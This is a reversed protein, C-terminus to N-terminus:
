RGQGEFGTCSQVTLNDLAVPHGFRRGHGLERWGPLEFGTRNADGRRVRLQADHTDLAAIVKIDVGVSFNPNASGLYHQAVEVVGFGRRGSNVGVAPKVGAVDSVNIRVAVDEDDISEFFEDLVLAEM